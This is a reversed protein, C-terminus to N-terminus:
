SRRAGGLEVGDRLAAVSSDEAARARGDRWSSAWTRLERSAQGRSVAATESVLGRLSETQLRAARMDARAARLREIQAGPRALSRLVARRLRLCAAWGDRRGVHRRTDQAHSLFPVTRATGPGRSRPM